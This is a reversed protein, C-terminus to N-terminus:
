KEIDDSNTNSSGTFKKCLQKKFNSTSITAISALLHLKLLCGRSFSGFSATITQKEGISNSFFFLFLLIVEQTATDLEVGSNSENSRIKEQM